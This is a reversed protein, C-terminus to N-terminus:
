ESPQESDIDGIENVDGNRVTAELIEQLVAAIIKNTNM